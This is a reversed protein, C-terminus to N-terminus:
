RESSAAIRRWGGEYETVLGLEDVGIEVVFGGGASEYRYRREALRTYRQPLPEVTLEPFRVWAATVAVTEGIVPALRRIPLTNTAPTFGLDVDSLGYLVGPDHAFADEADPERTVTWRREADTSLHLRRPPRRVGIDLAIRVERTAWDGGLVVEYRVVAPEAAVTTLVKGALRWGDPEQGLACWETGPSDIRQWLVTRLPNAIEFIPAASAAPAPEGM